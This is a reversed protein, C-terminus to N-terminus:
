SASVLQIEMPIFGHGYQLLWRSEWEFLAVISSKLSNHKLRPVVIGNGGTDTFFNWGRSFLIRSSPYFRQQLKAPAAKINVSLIVGLRCIIDSLYM